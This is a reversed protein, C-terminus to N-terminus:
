EQGNKGNLYDLMQTIIIVMQASILGLGLAIISVKVLSVMIVSGTIIILYRLYFNKLVDLRARGADKELTASIKRHILWINLISLVAGSIYGASVYFQWPLFLIAVGITLCIIKIIRLLYQSELGM